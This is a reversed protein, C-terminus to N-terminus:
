LSGRFFRGTIGQPLLRILVVAVLLLAVEGFVQTSAFTVSQNVIGFLVSASSTGTLIASGGGIVTIFARALYSGGLTPFVVSM